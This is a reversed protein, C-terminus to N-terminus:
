ERHVTLFILKEQKQMITSKNLLGPRSRRAETQMVQSEPYSVFVHQDTEPGGDNCMGDQM